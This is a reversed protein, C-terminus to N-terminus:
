HTIFYFLGYAGATLAAIILLVILVLLVPHKDKFDAAKEAFEAFKLLKGVHSIISVTMFLEDVVPIPDPVLANIALIILKVILPLENYIAGLICLVVIVGIVAM